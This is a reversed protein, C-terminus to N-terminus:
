EEREKLMNKAARIDKQPTSKDGSALLLVVTTEHTTAKGDFIGAIKERPIEQWCDDLTRADPIYRSAVYCRLLLGCCRLLKTYCVNYSTIRFREAM